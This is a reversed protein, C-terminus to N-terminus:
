IIERLLSKNHIVLLDHATTNEKKGLAFQENYNIPKSCPNLLFFVSSQVM